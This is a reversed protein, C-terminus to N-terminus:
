SCIFNLFCSPKPLWTLGCLLAPPGTNKRSYGGRLWFLPLCLSTCLTSGGDQYWSVLSASSCDSKESCLSLLLNHLYMGRVRPFCSLKNGLCSWSGTVHSSLGRCLRRDWLRRHWGGPQHLLAAGGHRSLLAWVVRESVYSTNSIIHPTQPSKFWSKTHTKSGNQGTEKIWKDKFRM